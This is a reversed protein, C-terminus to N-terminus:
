TSAFHESLDDLLKKAAGSEIASAAMEVGEKADKAMGLVELVLSTGM